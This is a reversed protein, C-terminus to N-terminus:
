AFSDTSVGCSWGRTCRQVWPDIWPTGHTDKASAYPEAAAFLNFFVARSELLGACAPTL